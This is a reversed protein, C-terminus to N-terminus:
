LFDYGGQGTKPNRKFYKVYGRYSGNSPDPYYEPDSLYARCWRDFNFNNGFIINPSTENGVTTLDIFKSWDLESSRFVTFGEMLINDKAVHVYTDHTYTSPVNDVTTTLTNRIAKILSLGEVNEAVNFEIGDM